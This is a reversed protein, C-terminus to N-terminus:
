ENARHGEIGCKFCKVTANTEGGSLKEGYSSKKKKDDYLKGRYQGIGKKDNLSKYYSSSDEDYIRSKKVFDAFHTIQQYRIAKKIDPRLSNVFKLCKSREANMTNYYPCYKILEEEDFRQATNGWWDEAEKELIHTGFQVKRADTCNMVRFIKEIAKLWAQEKDPEHEGEFIPPNNRQFKELVHFEDDDGNRNGVNVQPIQSLSRASMRLVDVIADYNRGAVM